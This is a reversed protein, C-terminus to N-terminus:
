KSRIASPFTKTTLLIIKILISKMIRQSWIHYRSPSRHFLCHTFFGSGKETPTRIEYFMKEDFPNTTQSKNLVLKKGLQKYATLEGYRCFVITNGCRGRNLVQVKEMKLCFPPLDPPRPLHYDM